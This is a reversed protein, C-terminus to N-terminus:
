NYFRKKALTSKGVLPDVTMTQIMREFRKDDRMQRVLDNYDQVHDIQFTVNFGGMDINNGASSVPTLTRAYSNVDMVKQLVPLHNVLKKFQAAQEPTLVAEGSKLTYIPLACTQVGTM